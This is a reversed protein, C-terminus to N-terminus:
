KGVECACGRGHRFQRYQFQTTDRPGNGPSPLPPGQLAELSGFLIGRAGFALPLTGCFPGITWPQSGLLPATKLTQHEHSEKQSARPEALVVEVTVLFRGWLCWAIGIDDIGAHGPNRTHPQCTFSCPVTLHNLAEFPKPNM